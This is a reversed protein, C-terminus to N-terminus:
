VLFPHQFRALVVFPLLRYPKGHAKAILFTMLAIEAVDFELKRVVRQFQAAVGGKFQEFVFRDTRTKFQKTVPYDGLLTKLTM